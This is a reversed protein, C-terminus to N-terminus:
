DVVRVPFDLHDVAAGAFRKSFLTKIEVVKGTADPTNPHVILVLREGTARAARFTRAELVTIGDPFRPLITESVFTAWQQDSVGTGDPSELDFRLQSQVMVSDAWLTAQWGPAPAATQAAAGIAALSLFVASWLSRALM